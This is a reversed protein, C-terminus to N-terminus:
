GSSMAPKGHLSRHSHIDVQKVYCHCIGSLKLMPNNGVVAMHGRECIVVVFWVGVARADVRLLLAAFFARRRTAEIAWRLAALMRSRRRM